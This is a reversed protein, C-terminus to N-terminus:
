IEIVTAPRTSEYREDCIAVNACIMRKGDPPMALEVLGYSHHIHGFVHAKPRLGDVRRRLDHCGVLRNDFTMDLRDFAPGHTILVDTDDPILAWKERLKKGRPLNFAWDCFEPQWPTGWFVNGDIVCHDDRLYRIGADEIMQVLVGNHEEKELAIEHNGAVFIKHKHPLAGFWEVFRVIEWPSGRNTADGAHILVDGDPVLPCAQNHTDSM